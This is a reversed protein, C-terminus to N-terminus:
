PPRRPRPDSRAQAAGGGVACGGQGRVAHADGAGVLAGADSNANTIKLQASDESNGGCGILGISLLHILM